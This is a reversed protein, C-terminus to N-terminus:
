RLNLTIDAERSVCCSLLSSSSITSANLASLGVPRILGPPRRRILAPVALGVGFVGSTWSNTEDSADSIGLDGRLLLDL